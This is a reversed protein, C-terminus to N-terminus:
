IVFKGTDFFNEIIEDLRDTSENQQLNCNGEVWKYGDGTIKFKVTLRKEDEKFFEGDYDPNEIGWDKNLKNAKLQARDSNTSWEINYSNDIIEDTGKEYYIYDKLFIGSTTSYENLIENGDGSNLRDVLGGIIDNYKNYKEPTKYNTRDPENKFLSFFESLTFGDVGVKERSVRKVEVTSDSNITFGDTLNINTNAVIDHKVINRGNGEIIKDYLITVCSEVDDTSDILEKLPTNGGDILRSTNGLSSGCDRFYSTGENDECECFSLEYLVHEYTRKNIRELGSIIEEIGKDLNISSIITKLAKKSKNKKTNNLIDKEHIIYLTDNIRTILNNIVDLSYDKNEVSREFVEKLKGFLGKITHEDSQKKINIFKQLAEEKSQPTGSRYQSIIDKYKEYKKIEFELRKIQENLDKIKRKYRKEGLEKYTEIDEKLEKISNNIEEIAPVKGGVTMYKDVLGNLEKVIDDDTRKHELKYIEFDVLNNFLRMSSNKNLREKTNNSKKHWLNLIKTLEDSIEKGKLKEQERNYLLGLVINWVATNVIGNQEGLTPHVQQLFEVYTKTVEGFIGDNIESKMGELDIFDGNETKFNNLLIYQLTKLNNKKDETDIPTDISLLPLDSNNDQEIQEKRKRESTVSTEHPKLEIDLEKIKDNLITTINVPVFQSVYDDGGLNKVSLLLNQLINLNEAV